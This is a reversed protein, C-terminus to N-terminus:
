EWGMEKQEDMGGGKKRGENGVMEVEAQAGLVRREEGDAGDGDESGEGEGGM